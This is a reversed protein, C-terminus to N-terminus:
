VRTLGLVRFSSRSQSLESPLHLIEGGGSEFERHEPTGPTGLGWKVRGSIVYAFQESPHHHLAVKCGKELRVMATLIKEGRVAKRELLPIPHDANVEQVTFERPGGFKGLSCGEPLGRDSQM